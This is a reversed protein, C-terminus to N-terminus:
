DDGSVDRRLYDMNGHQLVYGSCMEGNRNSYHNYKCTQGYSTITGKYFVSPIPILVNPTIYFLFYDVGAKNPGNKGNIDVSLSGCRVIEVDPHNSCNKNESWFIISAGNALIAKGGYWSQQPDPQANSSFDNNFLASYHSAFWGTGAGCEKSIRM